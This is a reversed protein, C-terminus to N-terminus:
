SERNQLMFKVKELLSNPFFFRKPLSSVYKYFVCGYVHNLVLSSQVAIKAGTKWQVTFHSLSIFFM